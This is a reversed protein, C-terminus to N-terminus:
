KKMGPKKGFFDSMKKMGTTDVKKLDRLGRTELKKKADEEEKRRKKELRAEAIEDDEYANRKRSYDGLSRAALAEARMKTIMELRRDLPKFDLGTHSADLLGKIHTAIRAPLYSSIIYTLVTRIRLLRELQRDGQIEFDPLTIDTSSSKTSLASVTEPLSQQSHVSSMAESFPGEPESSQDESRDSEERKFGIVPMDLTRRVFKEELSTPFGWREQRIAKDVLVKVLKDESLRYMSDEGAEVVDCAARLREEFMAKLTCERTVPEFYSSKECINDLIDDFKRFLKKASDDRVREDSLAPVLLFLPDIPTAVLLGPRSMVTSAAMTTSKSTYTTKEGSSYEQRPENQQKAPTLLWSRHSKQPTTIRIFEYIGATPDVFYRSPTGNRPHCITAIFSDSSRQKPLVILMSQVNSSM